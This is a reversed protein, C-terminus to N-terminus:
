ETLLRSGGNDSQPTLIPPYAPSVAKNTERVSHVNCVGCKEEHFKAVM